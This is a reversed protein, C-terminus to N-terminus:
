RVAIPVKTIVTKGKYTVAATIECVGNGVAHVIGKDSVKAVSPNM